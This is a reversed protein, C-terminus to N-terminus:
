SYILTTYYIFDIWFTYFVVVFIYMEGIIEVNYYLSLIQCLLQSERNTKM